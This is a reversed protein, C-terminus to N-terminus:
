GEILFEDFVVDSVAAIRFQQFGTTEQNLLLCTCCPRKAAIKDKDPPFVKEVFQIM